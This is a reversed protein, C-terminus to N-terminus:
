EGTHQTRGLRKVGFVALMTDQMGKSTISSKFKACQGALNRSTAVIRCNSNIRLFNYTTSTDVTKGKWTSHRIAREYIKYHQERVVYCHTRLTGRIRYLHTEGQPESSICHHYLFLIDWNFKAVGPEAEAWWKAFQQRFIIDDEMIVVNRWKNSRALNLCAIQADALSVRASVSRSSKKRESEKKAFRIVRPDDDDIIPAKVVTYRDVGVRKLEQEFWPRRESTAHEAHIVCYGDFLNGFAMNLHWLFHKAFSGGKWHIPDVQPSGPKSLPM